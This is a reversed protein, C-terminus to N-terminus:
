SGRVELPPTPTPTYRRKPLERAKALIRTLVGHMNHMVDHNSFRILCYGLADLQQDRMMDADSDHTNGDIEVVLGNYSCSFDCIYTGIVTQRRFKFGSFQSNSLHRWLCKEAETPVNRMRRAHTGRTKHIRLAM